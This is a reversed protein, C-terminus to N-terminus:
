GASRASTSTTRTDTASATARSSRTSSSSTSGERRTLIGNENDHFSCNRVTLNRGEQRIGAGNEDPVTAGPFEVNLVTTDSGRIVWIGKGGDDVGDAILRARGGVGCISLNSAYWTAVDARYDGAAIQIADGNQAAAAAARVTAFQRAPGVTLVRGM